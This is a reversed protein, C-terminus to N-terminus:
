CEKLLRISHRSPSNKMAERPYLETATKSCSTFQMIHIRARASPPNQFYFGPYLDNGDV